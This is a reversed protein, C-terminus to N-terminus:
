KLLGMLDLAATKTMGETMLEDLRVKEATKLPRLLELYEGRKPDWAMCLRHHEEMARTITGCVTKTIKVTAPIAITILPISIQPHAVCWDLGEKAKRKATWWADDLKQKFARQDLIEQIRKQQEEYM